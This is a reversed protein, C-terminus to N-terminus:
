NKMKPNARTRAWTREMRGNALLDGYVSGPVTAPLWEMEGLRRMKWGTHLTKETM